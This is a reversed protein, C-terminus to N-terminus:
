QCAEARERLINAQRAFVPEEKLGRTIRKGFCVAGGSCQVCITGLSSQKAFANCLGGGQFQENKAV